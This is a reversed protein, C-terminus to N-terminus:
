EDDSFFGAPWNQITGDSNFIMKNFISENNSKECVLLNIMNRDIKDESVLLGLHNVITESHTEIVFKLSKKRNRVIQSLKFFTNIIKKQFAPHLHLEPQEIVIIKHSVDRGRLSSFFSIWISLIIPFIQSYGFGVDTMNYDDNNSDCRVIVSTTENGDGSDLVDYYFGLNETCWEQFKKKEVNNMRYLIMPANDGNSDVEDVNLGQVRYFRDGRSRLPGFYQINEFTSKFAKEVGNLLDSIAEELFIDAIKEAPMKESDDKFIFRKPAEKYLKECIKMRRNKDFTIILPTLDNNNSKNVNTISEFILDDMMLRYRYYYISKQTDTKKPFFSDEIAPRFKINEILEKDLFLQYHGKDHLKFLLEGYGKFCILYESINKDNFTLSLTTETQHSDSYSDFLSIKGLSFTLIIEERQADHHLAKKFSGFDVYDGYWLIPSSLRKAISQKLLPFVRLLTSKGSSNKGIVVTMDKLEIEGSDLISKLNQIRITEM